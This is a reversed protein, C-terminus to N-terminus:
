LPLIRVRSKAEDVVVLAGAALESGHQNLAAVVIPAIHDPLINQGRVQIVSPGSAHTLALMTGFDLDHTFVVYGNTRAWRMVDRDPAAPDGIASWHISHYGHKDLEEVWNPSLNMDILLQVRM